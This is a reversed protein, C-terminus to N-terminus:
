REAALLFRQPSFMEAAVAPAEGRLMQSMVRATAPALLIGNRFHGTAIWLPGEGCAGMLPLGDASGPRLGTWTDVVRAASIPPWLTRAEAVLTQVVESDVAKDFGSRLVTAGIVIRGDGRPVLYTEPTRLVSTLLGSDEMAVTVLQGKRPEIGFRGAALDSTSGPLSAAWAGCCNLFAGAFLEGADTTLAVGDGAQKVGLVSTQERLEVGAATAAQPLAACLDRPDLSDEDLLLFDRGDTNLGPVLVKADLDGILREKTSGAAFSEGHRSGQLTKRTRVPIRAGSLGEIRALYEPYLALSLASLPAMVPPNEPDHAALMGAAAWSAESMARGRELVTVRLGSLALELATSLGIIGGGAIVVDVTKV